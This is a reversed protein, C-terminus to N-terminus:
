LDPHKRAGRRGGIRRYRRHGASVAPRFPEKWRKPFVRWAKEAGRGGTRVVPAIGTV